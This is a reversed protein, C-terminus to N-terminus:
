MDSRYIQKARRVFRYIVAFSQNNGVLRFKGLVSKDLQAVM